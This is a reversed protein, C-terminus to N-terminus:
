ADEHESERYNEIGATDTTEVVAFESFHSRTVNAIVRKAKVAICADRVMHVRETDDGQIFVNLGTVCRMDPRADSDDILLSAKDPHADHWDAWERLEAPDALDIFVWKPTFGGLRVAILKEHGRM